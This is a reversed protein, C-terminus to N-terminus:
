KCYLLNAASMAEGEYLCGQVCLFDWVLGIGGLDEVVIRPREGDARGCGFASHGCAHCRMRACFGTPAPMAEISDIKRIPHEKSYPSDHNIRSLTSGPELCFGYEKELTLPSLIKKPVPILYRGNGKPILKCEFSKDM